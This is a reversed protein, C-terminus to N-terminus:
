ESEGSAATPFLVLQYFADKKEKPLKDFIAQARATIANFDAVVTEAEQFNM